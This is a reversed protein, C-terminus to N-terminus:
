SCRTPAVANGEPKMSQNNNNNNDDRSKARGKEQGEKMWGRYTKYVRGGRVKTQGRRSEARALLLLIRVMAAEIEGDTM